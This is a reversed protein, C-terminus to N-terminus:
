VNERDEKMKECEVAATCSMERILEVVTTIDPKDATFYVLRVLANTAGVIVAEIDKAETLNEVQQRLMRWVASDAGLARAQFASNPTRDTM